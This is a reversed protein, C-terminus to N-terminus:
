LSFFDSSVYKHYNIDTCGAQFDSQLIASIQRPYFFFFANICFVIVRGGRELLKKQTQLLSM